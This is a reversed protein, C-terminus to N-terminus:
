VPKHKGKRISVYTAILFGIGALIFLYQVYKKGENFFIYAIFFSVLAEFLHILIHMTRSHTKTLILSIFYAIVIVGCLLMIGGLLNYHQVKDYGKLILTTGLLLHLISDLRHKINAM